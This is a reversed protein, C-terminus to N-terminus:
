EGRAGERLAAYAGQLRQACCSNTRLRRPPRRNQLEDAGGRAKASRSSSLNKTATLRMAKKLSLEFDQSGHRVDGGFASLRVLVGDLAYPSQRWTVLLLNKLLAWSTAVYM